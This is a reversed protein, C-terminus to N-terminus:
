PTAPVLPRVRRQSFWVGALTVTCGLVMLPRVPERLILWGALVAVVPILYTVLTANTAGVRGILAYYLVFAVGTGLAGLALVSAVVPVTLGELRPWGDLAAASATSALWAIGIQGTAMPLAPLVPTVFRKAYVAGSALLVVAVVVATIAAGENPVTHVDTQVVFVSGAVAVLIGATKRLSFPEAAIALSIVLTVVPLLAYLIATMSSTITQQAWAVLTWPVVNGPVALFALHFWTRADRPLAVHRAQQVVLLVVFGALTRGSVLWLPTMGQVATRILLLRIGM